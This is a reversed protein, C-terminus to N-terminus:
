LDRLSAASRIKGTRRNPEFGGINPESVLVRGTWSLEQFDQLKHGYYPLLNDRRGKRAQPFIDRFIRELREGRIRIM